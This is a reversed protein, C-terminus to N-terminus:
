GAARYGLALEKEQWISELYNVELTVVEIDGGEAFLSLSREAPTPFFLNTISVQGDNGFIEISSRDLLIRLRIRNQVPRLPAADQWSLTETQVDYVIREGRLEFGLTHAGRLEIEAHIDLVDGEIGELIATDPSVRQDHWVLQKAYLNKIGALPYRYLRIGEPDTRLTLECPFSMQGIWTLRPERLYGVFALQIM